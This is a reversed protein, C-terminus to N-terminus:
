PPPSGGSKAITESSKKLIKKHPKIMLSILIQDHYLSM